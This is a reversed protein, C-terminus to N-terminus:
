KSQLFEVAEDLNKFVETQFGFQSTYIQFMRGLGFHLPDTVLIAILPSIKGQLTNFYNARARIAEQPTNGKYSRYDLLFPSKASFQPDAMAAEIANSFEEFVFAEGCIIWTITGSIKYAVPM